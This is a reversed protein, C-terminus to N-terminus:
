RNLQRNRKGTKHNRSASTKFNQPVIIREDFKNGARNNRRSVRRQFQVADITAATGFSCVICPKGYLEVAAFANVVRDIGLSEPPFYNIKLNFDFSIDVFTPEINFRKKSFEIYSNKLEPVVSSIIVAHISQPLTSNYIEDATQHRVTPIAFRHLLSDNEFIGFKTYSNGIDIALLM